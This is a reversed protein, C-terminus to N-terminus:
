SSIAELLEMRAAKRAPLIGAATGGVTTLGLYTLLQGIPMTLPVDSSGALAPVAVTALLLGLGLGTVAGVVATLAAELKVMRGLQRRMMGVARLLGIERTRETISLALANTIGLLAIVMALLLLVTMLGLMSDVMRTRAAKAETEDYVAATPYDILAEELETKVATPEAGDELKVLVIADVDEAFNARYTDLSILYGTSVAWADDADFIGVVELSRTGTRAFTMELSDGVNVSHAAAVDEALVVGGKSLAAISGALMTIDAVQSLTSPDVATLAKTAGEHKWHGFRLRSTASVGDIQEIHHHIMPSLGGLMEGRASEVMLEALIVDDVGTAIAAKVSSAIVTMLTVLAIGVTLATSTVATRRGARRLNLRALRSSLSGGALRGIWNALEGVYTPALCVAAALLVVGTASVLPISDTVATAVLLGVAAVSLATGIALRSGSARTALAEDRMAVIPAVRSARRAPLMAAILTVVVGLAFGTALTTPEIFLPGDPIVVGFSAAVQRLGTAMAVGVGLGLLSAVTGVILAEGLVSGAIQRSTAGIARLTAFERTRQAVVISFTNAIMFAGVVFVTGALLLLSIRLFMLQEQAAEASSQAMDQSTIVEYGEGLESALAERVDRLAGQGAVVQVETWGSGQGLLEQATRPEFLAVTANPIGPADGFTAIGVVEMSQSGVDLSVAIRDGVALGVSDATARDVVIEDSERPPQGTEIRFPNFPESAWSLAMSRGRPVVPNGDVVLLASGRTVGEVAVVGPTSLIRDVVSQPVPDREVEVGMAADFEAADRVVLDVGATAQSFQADFLRASTDTLVLSGTVFAVGLLVAVAMLMLRVKRAALSKLTARVM